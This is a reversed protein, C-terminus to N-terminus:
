SKLIENIKSILNDRKIPKRIIDSANMGNCIFMIEEAVDLASLFLVKTDTNWVKIQKFLQFGNFGPMRIDTVILDYYYPDLDSLHDLAKHSDSFTTVNYGEGEIISKFTFLIDKDDDILLINFTSNHKNPKTQKQEIHNQRKKNDREIQQRQSKIRYVTYVVHPSKNYEEQNNIEKFRFESFFPTNDIVNYLDKYIVMENSLALHNIKSCINVASGFLDVSNSNSSSAMEVKGYNASIRYDISPLGNKNLNSNLISNAEIMDLGCDLVEQFHSMKSLNVTKPFYYLIIDGINKIVKGEHRNIISTMTNIFISYYQRIKESIKLENTNQASNVINIICICYSHSYETFTIEDDEKNLNNLKFSPTVDSIPNEMIKDDKHVRISSDDVQDDYHIDDKEEIPRHEL